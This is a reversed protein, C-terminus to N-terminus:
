PPSMELQEPEDRQVKPAAREADSPTPLEEAAFVPGDVIQELLDAAQPILEITQEVIWLLKCLEETFDAPWREPRIEDLSSSRKGAGEKMRYSLWSKVVQLGSVSFEWIAPDVPEFIGEGVTLRKSKPDFDFEEPYDAPDAPVATTCKATGAPVVGPKEGDPTFREGYTHLWILRGGLNVAQEFLAGEKTIPVRPGPIELEAAFRDTYDGALIAYVYAFLDEPHVNRM